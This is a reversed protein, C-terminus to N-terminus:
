QSWLSAGHCCGDCGVLLLWVNAEPGHALPVHKQCVSWVIRVDNAQVRRRPQDKLREVTAPAALCGVDEEISHTVHCRSLIGLSDKVLTYRKEFFSADDFRHYLGSQRGAVQYSPPSATCCGSNSRSRSAM